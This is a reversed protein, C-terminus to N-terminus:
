PQQNNEVGQGLAAGAQKKVSRLHPYGSVIFYKAQEETICTFKYEKGEFIFTTPNKLNVIEFKGDLITTNAM